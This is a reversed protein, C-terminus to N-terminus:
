KSIKSELIEKLKDIEIYEIDDWTYYMQDEIESWIRNFEEQTM